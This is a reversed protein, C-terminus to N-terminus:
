AGYENAVALVKLAAAVARRVGAEEGVALTVPGLVNWMRWRWTKATRRVIEARYYGESWIQHHGPVYVVRIQDHRNPKRKAYNSSM